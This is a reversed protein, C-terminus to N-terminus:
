DFAGKEMMDSLDESGRENDGFDDQSKGVSDSLSEKGFPRKVAYELSTKRVVSDIPNSNNSM